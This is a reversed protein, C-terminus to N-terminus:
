LPHVPHGGTALTGPFRLRSPSKLEESARYEESLAIPGPPLWWPQYHPIEPVQPDVMRRRPHNQLVLTKAALIQRVILLFLVLCKGCVPDQDLIEEDAQRDDHGTPVELPM